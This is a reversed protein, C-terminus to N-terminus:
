GIAPANYKESNANPHHITPIESSLIRTGHTKEVTAAHDTAKPAM